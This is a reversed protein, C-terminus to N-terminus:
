AGLPHTLLHAVPLFLLTLASPSRVEQKKKSLRLAKEAKDVRKSVRLLEKDKDSVNLIFAGLHQNM